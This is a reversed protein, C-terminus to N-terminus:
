KGPLELEEGFLRGSLSITRALRPHSEVQFPAHPVSEGDISIYGSLTSSPNAGVFMVSTNM